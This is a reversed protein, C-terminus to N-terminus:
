FQKLNRLVGEEWTFSGELFSLERSCEGLCWLPYSGAQKSFSPNFLIVKYVLLPSKSHPRLDTPQTLTPQPLFWLRSALTSGPPIIHPFISRIPNGGGGFRQTTGQKFPGSDTSLWLISPQIPNRISPHLPEALACLAPLASALFKHVSLVLGTLSISAQSLSSLSSRGKSTRRPHQIFGSLFWCLYGFSNVFAISHRWHEM